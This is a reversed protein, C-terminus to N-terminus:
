MPCNGCMADEKDRDMHIRRLRKCAPGNWYSSFDGDELINFIGHQPQTRTCCPTVLGEATIHTSRYPWHCRGIRPRPIKYGVVIGRLALRFQTLWIHRRIRPLYEMSALVQRRAAEYGVDGRILWSEVFSIALYDVGLDICLGGIDKLKTYNEHTVTNNVGVIINSRGEDRESILLRLGDLVQKLGIKGMPRLRSFEEEDTSDISVGVDYVCDHILDRVWQDRLLSGNTILWVKLNRSKLFRLIPDIEPNLFPEGLGVLRISRLDPFQDVIRQIKELTMDNKLAEPTLVNRSCTGCTANCRTTPEVEIHDPLPVEMRERYRILGSYFRVKGLKRAFFRFM